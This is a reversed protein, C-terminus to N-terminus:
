ITTRLGGGSNSPVPISDLPPETDGRDRSVLIFAIALTSLNGFISAIVFAQLTWEPAASVVFSIAFSGLRMLTIVATLTLWFKQKRLVVFVANCPSCIWVLYLWPAIIELFRGAVLWNEGLIWAALPQGNTALVGFPILGALSLATVSLLFARRLSRGRNEIESAKQLFVRRVSASVITVPVQCLRDAMAYLGAIAPSFMAGFLLVPLNQGMAFILGAPADFKPFDSYKSAITLATDKRLRRCSAFIPDKASSFQVAFRCFLGFFYGTILGPVSSGAVAGIAIRSGSTGVNFTVLSTSLTKFSKERTLWSEQILVLSMFFVAIPVAWLWGGLLELASWSSHSLKYIGILAVLFVCALFVIRHSFAMIQIAENRDKPLVIAAAYRLSAVSSLIGTISAFVAAVGFDSPVFLRAVIPMTFLAIVAAITKGSMMVAVNGIFESNARLISRM